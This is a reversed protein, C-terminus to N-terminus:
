KNGNSKNGNKKNGNKAEIAFEPVKMGPKIDIVPMSGDRILGLNNVIVKVGFQAAEKPDRPAYSGHLMFAKDMALLQVHNDDVVYKKVVHRVIEEIRRGTKKREIKDERVFITKKKELHRRLHRDIIAEESFGLRDMMDPVRGRIAKLAQHGSQRANKPSYGAKVAAEGLTKCHPIEKMLRAQRLTHAGSIGRVKETKKEKAM